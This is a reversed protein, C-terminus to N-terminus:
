GMRELKRVLRLLWLTLGYAACTVTAALALAPWFDFQRLLWPLVAFFVPSPLVLWFIDAALAAVKAVDRTDVYLWIIGLVSVFPLATILGGFFTPRKAVESVRVIMAASISVKVVYYHM